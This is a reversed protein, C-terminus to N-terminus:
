LRTMRLRLQNCMVTLRVGMAIMRSMMLGGVGFLLSGPVAPFCRVFAEFAAAHTGGARLQWGSIRRVAGAEYAVSYSIESKRFAPCIVRKDDIRPYGFAHHSVRRM